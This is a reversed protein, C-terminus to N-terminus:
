SWGPPRGVAALFAAKARRTHLGNLIERVQADTMGAPRAVAPAPAAAPAPAPLPAPLPPVPRPRTNRLKDVDKGAYNQFNVFANSVARINVYPRQTGGPPFLVPFEDAYAQQISVPDLHFLGTHEVSVAIHLHLRGKQKGTGEEVAYKSDTYIIQDADAPTWPRYAMKRSRGIRGTIPKFFSPTGVMRDPQFIKVTAEKMAARAEEKDNDSVKKNFSVTVLFASENHARNRIESVAGGPM